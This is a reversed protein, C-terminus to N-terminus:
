VIAVGVFPHNEPQIGVPRGIGKEIPHDLRTLHYRRGHEPM